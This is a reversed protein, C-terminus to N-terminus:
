DFRLFILIVFQKFEALISLDSHNSRRLSKICTRYVNPQGEGHAGPLVVFSAPDEM